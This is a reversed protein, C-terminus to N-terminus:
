HEGRREKQFALLSQKYIQFVVLKRSSFFHYGEERMTSDNTKFSRQHSYSLGSHQVLLPRPYWHSHNRTTHTTHTTASRGITRKSSSRSTRLVGFDETCNSVSPIRAGISQSQQATMEKTFVGGQTSKLMHRVSALSWNKAQWSSPDLWKGFFPRCGATTRDRISADDDDDDRGASMGM